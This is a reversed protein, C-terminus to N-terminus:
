YGINKVAQPGLRDSLQQLYLSRPQVPKDYSDYIAEPIDPGKAAGRAGIIPMPQRRRQGRSGIVWNISGPPLQAVLEDATSNWIVSWGIAWGHGSGMEGRNIFHIGGGHVHVNDVLFGTSWRQHPEVDQDGTFDCDLLVNPGQIRAQTAAFFIKDGHSSSRMVLTQTGALSFGFPKAPSTIPKRNTLDVRDITVRRAPAEVQVFNTTDRIDLDRLWVDEAATIHIADFHPDSLAISVSPATISLAEIGSDHLRAPARAAIVTTATGGGFHPDYDDTIPVDLTLINGRIAVIRRETTISSGIWHEDKGNRVLHDMAMFHLYDPTIPHHILITDGIAFGTASAVPLQRTGSPIYTDALATHVHPSKASQEEASPTANDEDPKATPSSANLGLVFGIHPTGTLELTTKDRGSGRLVLNSASINIPAGLHFAGPALLLAQPTNSKAAIVAVRDLASQLAATDDAGSPALTEAVPASPLAVGGGRYGAYSFDVIHDGTSTTAYALKGQANTRVWQSYPGATDSTPSSVALACLTAAILLRM